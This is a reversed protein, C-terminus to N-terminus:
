KWFAKQSETIAANAQHLIYILLLNNNSTFNTPKPNTIINIIVKKSSNLACPVTHPCFSGLFATTSSNVVMRYVQIYSEPITTFTTWWLKKPENQGCVTGHACSKEM